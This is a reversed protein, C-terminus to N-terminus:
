SVYNRMMEVLMQLADPGDYPELKPVSFYKLARVLAVSGASGRRFKLHRASLFPGVQDIRLIKPTTHTVPHVPTPRKAQILRNMLDTGLEGQLGNAEYAIVVFKHQEALDVLVENTKSAPRRGLLADVYLHRDGRKWHCWVIAALDGQTGVKGVCPDVAAFSVSGAPPEDFWLDEGDFWTPDFRMAQPPVPESQKEGAFATRGGTARLRMLDELSESEPWLVSAGADMAARHQNRFADAADPSYLLQEWQDWLDMRDPWSLISRYLRHTWGPQKALRGVLCEEHILTGIVVINTSRTGLKEISKSFWSWVKERLATSYQALDGEPDDIVILTPRNENARLGRVRSGAGIARIHIGNRTTVRKETWKPGEGCAEPYEAALARNTALEHKVISLMAAAQESSDSAIVIFPEAHHCICWLVYIVSVWTSKASGRPSTVAIRAGRRDTARALEGSIWRHMECPPLSAHVPLYKQAWDVLSDRQKAISAARRLGIEFNRLADVKLRQQGQVRTGPM